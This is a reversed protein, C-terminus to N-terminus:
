MRNSNQTKPTLASPHKPDKTHTHQKLDLLADTEYAAIQRLADPLHRVTLRHQVLLVPRQRHHALQLREFGIQQVRHLHLAPIAVLVGFLQLPREHSRQEIRNNHYRRNTLLPHPINCFTLM